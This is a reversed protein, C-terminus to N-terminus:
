CTEADVHSAELIHSQSKFCGGSKVFAPEEKKLPTKPFPVFFLIVSVIYVLNSLRHVSSIHTEVILM